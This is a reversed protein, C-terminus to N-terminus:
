TGRGDTVLVVTASWGHDRHEIWAAEVRDVEAVEVDDFLRRLQETVDDDGANVTSSRTRSIMSLAASM